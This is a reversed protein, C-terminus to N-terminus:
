MPSLGLEWGEDMEAWRHMDGLFPLHVCATTLHSYSYSGSWLGSARFCYLLLHWRSQYGLWAVSILPGLLQTTAQAALQVRAVPLKDGACWGGAPFVKFINSVFGLKLPVVRAQGGSLFCIGAPIEAELTLLHFAWGVSFVAWHKPCCHTWERQSPPQCAGGLLLHLLSSDM